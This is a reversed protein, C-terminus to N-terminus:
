ERELAFGPQDRSRKPAYQLTIFLLAEALCKKLLASGGSPPCGQARKSGM